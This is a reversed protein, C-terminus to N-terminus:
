FAGPARGPIASRVRLLEKIREPDLTPDRELLLAVLGSVFATAMSSGDRLAHTQDIQAGNQAPTGAALASIIWAGPAALDPKSQGNLLPGPSSFPSVTRLPTSRAQLKGSIDRWERRSTYAAVTIARAASGPWGIKMSNLSEDFALDDKSIKRGDSRQGALWVDVVADGRLLLSWEGSRRVANGSITIIFARFDSGSGLERFQASVDAMLAQKEADGDAAFGSTAAALGIAVAVRNQRRYAGKIQIEGLGPGARFPIVATQGLSLVRQARINHEGRNGAACCIIRGAGTLENIKVCLPERGESPGPPGDVSLNIVAPRDLEKAVRFIYELGDIMHGADLDSRVLLLEAGPAVGPYQADLGAAIGAIHTGHGSSDGLSAEIEQSHRLEQGYGGEAVGAGHPHTQDWVRLIRGRLAPHTPDFGTDIIGVLVGRGTLQTAAWLAPLGTVKAAMDLAPELTESPHIYHIAAERSLRALMRLPLFATRMGGKTQNVEIAYPLLHAFDAEADCEVIVVVRVPKSPPDAVVGRRGYRRAFTSRRMRARDKRMTLLVPSVKDTNM